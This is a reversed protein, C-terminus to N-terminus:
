KLSSMASKYLVSNEMLIMMILIIMIMAIMITMVIITTTTMMNKKEYKKEKEGLIYKKENDISVKKFKQRMKRWAYIMVVGTIIVFLELTDWTNHGNAKAFFAFILDGKFLLKWSWQLIKIYLWKRFPMALCMGFLHNADPVIKSNSSFQESSMSIDHHEVIIITGELIVTINLQQLQSINKDNENRRGHSYM